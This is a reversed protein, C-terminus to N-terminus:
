GVAQNVVEYAKCFASESHSEPTWGVIRPDIMGAGRIFGSVSLLVDAAAINLLFTNQNM